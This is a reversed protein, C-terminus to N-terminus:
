SIIGSPFSIANQIVNSLAGQHKSRASRLTRAALKWCEPIRSDFEWADPPITRLGMLHIERSLWVTMCSLSPWETSENPYVTYYQIDIRSSDGSHIVLSSWHHDIICSWVRRCWTKVMTCIDGVVEYTLVVGNWDAILTAPMSDTLGALRCYTETDRENELQANM